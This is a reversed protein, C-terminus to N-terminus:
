SIAFKSGVRRFAKRVLVTIVGKRESDICGIKLEFVKKFAALMKSNHTARFDIAPVMCSFERKASASDM